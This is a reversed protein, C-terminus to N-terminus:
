SRVGAALPSLTLAPEGQLYSRSPDVLFRGQMATRGLLMSFLMDTRPTLNLEIWWRQTGLVAETRIFPRLTRHGGSDRVVRRDVVPAHFRHWLGPAREFRFRVQPQGARTYEEIDLAHLCSSRAGSDVKAKIRDIGLEPLALWERWGLTQRAAHGNRM